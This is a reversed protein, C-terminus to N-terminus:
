ERSDQYMLRRFKPESYRIVCRLRARGTDWTNDATPGYILLRGSRCVPHASTRPLRPCRKSCICTTNRYVTSYDQYSISQKVPLLRASQGVILRQRLQTVLDAAKLM